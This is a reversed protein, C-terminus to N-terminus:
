SAYKIRKDLDDDFFDWDENVLGEKTMYFLGAKFPDYKAIGIRDSPFFNNIDEIVDNHISKDKVYLVMHNHNGGRNKFRETTFFLKITTFPHKKTLESNLAYMMNYCAKKNKDYKYAITIFFSWPMDWLKRCLSDKDMLGDVLNRMSKNEHCVQNYEDHMIELDFYKQHSEPIIRKRHELKTADFLDPRKAYFRYITSRSKKVSKAFENIKEYKM